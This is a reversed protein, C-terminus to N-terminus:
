PSHTWRQAQPQNGGLTGKFSLLRRIGPTQKLKLPRLFTSLVSGVTGGGGAKSFPDRTRPQVTNQEFSELIRHFIHRYFLESTNKPLLTPSLPPLYQADSPCALDWFSLHVRWVSVTLTMGSALWIEIVALRDFTNHAANRLGGGPDRSSFLGWVVM